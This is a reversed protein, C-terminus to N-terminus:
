AAARGKAEGTTVLRRPASVTNAPPVQRKAADGTIRFQEIVEVLAEVDAALTRSTSNSQGVMAANQQTIQDMQNVRTNIEDLETAQQRSSAAIEGIVQNLGAVQVAIQQLSTGTERVLSVGEAVQGASRFILAKIEKAAEASRQALARVESAVVAFGRGSDGARAAEVGANLALLNTQFAIEDIVGIIQGIQTSSTEIGTMAHVARQVVAGSQEANTRTTSVLQQAHAAGESTAKVTATIEDLAAATQELSAAQRETRGSLDDTATSIESTRGRIAATGASVQGITAQLRKVAANFDDCLVAYEGPLQAAIRNTLDGEMLSRVAGGISSVVLERERRQTQAEAAEADRHARHAAERAQEAAVTAAEATATADRASALSRSSTEFMTNLNTAVWILTGAEVMLITAHLLVRDLGAANQFIAAPVIFSLVLHHVAVTAAAALIVFLDGYIILLALAAFYAMHLDTQYPGGNMVLLSIEGMLAVGPLARGLRTSGGFWWAGTALAACALAGGIATSVNQDVWFGVAACVPVLAWVLAVIFPGATRRLADFTNITLM